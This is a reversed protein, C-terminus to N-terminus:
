DNNGDAKEVKPKVTRQKKAKPQTKEEAKPEIKPVCFSAAAAAAAEQERMRRFAFMGM